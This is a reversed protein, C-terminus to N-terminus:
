PILCYDALNIGEKKQIEDLQQIRTKESQDAMRYAPRSQRDTEYGALMKDFSGKYINDRIRLIRIDGVPNLTKAIKMGIRIQELDTILPKKRGRRQYAAYVQLYDFVADYYSSHGNGSEADKARAELCLKHAESNADILAHVQTKSKRPGKRIIVKDSRSKQIPVEM